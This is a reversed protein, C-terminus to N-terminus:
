HDFQIYDGCAKGLRLELQSGLYRQTTLISAHGLTQQVQELPSGGERSLRAYTRRLDHPRIAGLGARESASSIMHFAAQASLGFVGCDPSHVITAAYDEVYDAVWGPAPVSRVRGGKGRIDRWMWRGERKVWQDWVLGAVESRRLGCGVMCAVIAQNRAAHATEGAARLLTKVAEIDLWNGTRVGKVPESEIRLIGNLELDSILERMAAECALKKIAALAINLTSSRGGAARLYNLHALVGERTLLRGSSLYRRLASAYARRTQPSHLAAVAIDALSQASTLALM